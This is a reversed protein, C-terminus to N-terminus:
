GQSFTGIWLVGSRDIYLSYITNDSISIPDTKNNIFNILRDEKGIYQFLGKSETAIWIRDKNDILIYNRNNPTVNVKGPDAREYRDTKKNYFLKIIGNLDSTIWLYGEADKTVSVINSNTLVVDTKLIKNNKRDFYYLYDAFLLLKGNDNEYTNTFPLTNTTNYFRKFCTVTKNNFRKNVILNLANDTCIWINGSRDQNISFIVNSSISTSDEPNHRFHAFTETEPDFKDLGANANNIVWIYGDNDEYLFFSGNDSLSSSDNEIHRYIKFSYGDYRNIGDFTAFWMFGKKDQIIYSVTSHSLGDKTTIREFTLNATQSYISSNFLLACGSTVPYMFYFLFHIIKMTSSKKILTM